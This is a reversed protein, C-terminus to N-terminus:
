IKEIKNYSIDKVMSKIRDSINNLRCEDIAQDINSSSIYAILTLDEDRIQIYDPTNNNGKIKLNLESEFSEKSEFTYPM